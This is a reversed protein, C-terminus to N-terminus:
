FLPPALLGNAPAGPFAERILAVPQDEAAFLMRHGVVVTVNGLMTQHHGFNEAARESAVFVDVVDVAVAEVVSRLVEFDDRTPLV